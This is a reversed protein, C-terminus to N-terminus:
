EGEGIVRALQERFGQLVREVSRKSRGLREAITAVEHGEIRLKVIDRHSSSLGGLLEDITMKLLSLSVEDSEDAAFEAARDLEDGGRAARVDRKAARHFTGVTQIKHLGIVLFLKWLEEGDPVDYEGRKARRFFTRFVSQVIDEADVRVALDAGVKARSLGRLRKAYRLYLQTAADESGARLRRVLSRDSADTLCPAAHRVQDPM